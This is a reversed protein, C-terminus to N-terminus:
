RPLDGARRPSPSDRGALFGQLQSRHRDSELEPTGGVLDDRVAREPEKMVPQEVVCAAGAEVADPVLRPLAVAREVLGKGVRDGLLSRGPRRYDDVVVVQGKDPSVECFSPRVYRGRVECVRREARWLVQDHQRVPRPELQHLRHRGVAGAPEVGGPPAIRKQTAGRGDTYDSWRREHGREAGVRRPQVFHGVGVGAPRM